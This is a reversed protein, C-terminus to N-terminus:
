AVALTTLERLVQAYVVFPGVSIYDVMNQIKTANEAATGNPDPHAIITGVVELIMYGEAAAGLRVEDLGVPHTPNLENFRAAYVACIQDFKESSAEIVGLENATNFISAVEAGIACTGCLQWDLALLRRGASRPVLNNLNFDGHAFVQRQAALVENIEAQLPLFPGYIEFLRATEPKSNACAVLEEYIPEFYDGRFELWGAPKSRNLWPFDAVDSIDISNIEAALEAAHLCEDWTWSAGSIDGLDGNWFLFTGDALQSQGLYEPYDVSDPIRQALTSEFFFIERLWFNWSSQASADMFPKGDALHKVVVSFPKEGSATSATGWARYVGLSTPNGLGPKLAKLEFSEPQATADRLARAAVPELLEATLEFTNGM